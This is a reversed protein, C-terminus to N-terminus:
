CLFSHQFKMSSKLEHKEITIKERDFVNNVINHM